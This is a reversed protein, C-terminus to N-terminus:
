RCLPKRSAHSNVPAGSVILNRRLRPRRQADDQRDDRGIQQAGRGGAKDRALQPPPDIEALVARLVEAGGVDVPNESPLVRNGHRQEVDGLARDGHQQERFQHAAVLQPEGNNQAAGRYQPVHVGGVDRELAPLPHRGRRPHEQRERRDCDHDGHSQPADAQPQRAIDRQARDDRYPADRQPHCYQLGGLRVNEPRAKGQHRQDDERM